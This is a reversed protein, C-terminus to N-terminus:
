DPYAPLYTIHLFYSTIISDILSLFKYNKFFNIKTFNPFNDRLCNIIYVIEIM